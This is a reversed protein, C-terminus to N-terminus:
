SADKADPPAAPPAAAVSDLSALVQELARARPRTRSAADYVTVLEALAARAVEREPGAWPAAGLRRWLFTELIRPHRKLARAGRVVLDVSEPAIRTARTFCASAKRAGGIRHAYREGATVLIDVREADTKAAELGRVPPRADDSSLEPRFRWLLVLLFAIAAVLVRYDIM